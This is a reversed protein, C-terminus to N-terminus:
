QLADRERKRRRYKEGERWGREGEREGERGREREERERGREEKKEIAIDGNRKKGEGISNDRRGRDERGNKREPTHCPRHDFCRMGTTSYYPSSPSCDHMYSAFLLFLVIDHQHRCYPELVLVAFCKIRFAVMPM